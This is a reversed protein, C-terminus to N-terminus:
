NNNEEFFSLAEKEVVERIKSTASEKENEIIFTMLKNEINNLKEEINIQKIYSVFLSIIVLITNIILIPLIM